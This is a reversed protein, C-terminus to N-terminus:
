AKLGEVSSLIRTWISLLQLIWHLVYFKDIISYFVNHFLLFHQNDANEAKCVINKFFRNEFITMMYYLTVLMIYLAVTHTHDHISGKLLCAQKEITKSIM